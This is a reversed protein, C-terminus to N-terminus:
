GMDEAVMLLIDLKGKPSDAAICVSLGFALITALNPATERPSPM